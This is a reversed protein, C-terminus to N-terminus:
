FKLFLVCNNKKSMLKTFMAFCQNSSSNQELTSFYKKTEFYAAM